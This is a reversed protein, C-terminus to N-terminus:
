KDGFKAKLRDYEARDKAEKREIEGAFRRWNEPLRGDLGALFAQAERAMAGGGRDSMEGAYGADLATKEGEAMYAIAIQRLSQKDM